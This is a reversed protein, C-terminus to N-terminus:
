RGAGGEFWKRMGALLVQADRVHSREYGSWPDPPRGGVGPQALLRELPRLAGPSDGNRRALRSQALLASQAGPFLAEARDFSARAADRDGTLDQETGLFIAAYYALLPEALAAQATTLERVAGAHVGLLGLIRGLHLRVEAAAPDSMLAKRLAAESLALERPQTVVGEFLGARVLDQAGSQTAPTAFVEHMVGSLFLIRPDQPFMQAARDLNPMADSWRLQSTQWASTARYWALV